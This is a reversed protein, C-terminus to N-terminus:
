EAEREATNKITDLHETGYSDGNQRENSHKQYQGFKKRGKM